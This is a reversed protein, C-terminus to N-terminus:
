SGAVAVLRVKEQKLNNSQGFVVDIKKTPYNARLFNLHRQYKDTAVTAKGSEMGLLQDVAASYVLLLDDLDAKDSDASLARPARQGTFRVTQATVPIPWVEFEDANSSDGTNTDLQWNQIPDQTESLDSDLHNYQEGGIGACIPVWLASYYREVLVPREFNITSTISRINSTPLAVYRGGASCVKDWRDELFPWDFTVTLRKQANALAYNLETDRASNTEQAERLEAKLLARLTSLVVGRPM